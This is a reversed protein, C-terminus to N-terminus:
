LSRKIGIASDYKPFDSSLAYLDFMTTLYAKRDEDLWLEIDRRIKEFSPMGGRFIIEQKGPKTM